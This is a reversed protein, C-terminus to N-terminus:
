ERSSMNAKRMSNHCVKSRMLLLLTMRPLVNRIIGDRIVISGDFIEGDNVIRANFIYCNGPM